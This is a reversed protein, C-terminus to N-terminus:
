KDNKFWDLIKQIFSKKIIEKKEIYVDQEHVQKDMIYVIVSGVKMLKSFGNNLNNLLIAVGMGLGMELVICFFAYKVTVILAKWFTASKLITIWNQFWVFTYDPMRFSYNTLSYYIAMAFPIMIGITIILAPAVICYPLAKTKFPVTNLENVAASNKNQEKM